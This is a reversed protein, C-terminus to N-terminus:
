DLDTTSRRNPVPGRRLAVAMLWVSTTTIGLRQYLGSATEGLSSWLFVATALAVVIALIGAVKFGGSRLHRAALGGVSILAAYFLVAFGGHVFGQDPVSGDPTAIIAALSIAALGLGYAAGLGLISRLPFASAAIGAAMAVQGITMVLRSPANVAALSSIHTNALTAGPYLFGGILWGIIFLGPGWIAGTLLIADRNSRVSSSM